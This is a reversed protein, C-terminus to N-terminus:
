KSQSPSPRKRGTVRWAVFFVAATLMGLLVLPLAFLFTNTDSHAQGQRVGPLLVSSRRVFTNAEIPKLAIAGSMEELRNIYDAPDQFRTDVYVVEFNNKSIDITDNVDILVHSIVVTKLYTNNPLPNTYILDSREISQGALINRLTVASQLEAFTSINETEDFENMPIQVVELLEEGNLPTGSRIDVRARIIDTPPVETPLMRAQTDFTSAAPREPLLTRGLGMVLIGMILGISVFALLMGAQYVHQLWRITPARTVRRAERGLLRGCLGILGLCILSIASLVAIEIAINNKESANEVTTNGAITKVINTYSRSGTPLVPMTATDLDNLTLPQGATLDRTTRAGYVAILNTFTQARHAPDDASLTRVELLHETDTLIAGAPIDVRAVLTDYGLGVNARTIVDGAAIPRQTQRGILSSLDTIHRTPDYETASIVRLEILTTQDPIDMHASMNVRATAVAVCDQQDTLTLIPNSACGFGDPEMLSDQTIVEGAVIPRVAIRGQVQRIRSLYGKPLNDSDPYRAIELMASDSIVTSASIDVRARVIDIEPAKEEISPAESPAEFRSLSPFFSAPVIDTLILTTALVVGIILGVWSRGLRLASEVRLIFQIATWLSGGLLFGILSAYMIVTALPLTKILGFVVVAGIIITAIVLNLPFSIVWRFGLRIASALPQQRQQMGRREARAFIFSIYALTILVLGGTLGSTTIGFGGVLTMGASSVAIAGLIGTGIFLLWVRWWALPQAVAAPATPIDILSAEEITIPEDVEETLMGAYEPGAFYELVTRHVFIYSGGVKRLLLRDAAVDLFGAINWPLHGRSWLVIRLALHSLVAYGGYALGSILGGILGMFLISSWGRDPVDTQGMTLLTIGLRSIIQGIMGLSVLGILASLLASRFSRRIGQNPQTHASLDAGSLGGIIGLCVGLGTTTLVSTILILWPIIFWPTSSEPQDVSTIKLVIIGISTAIGAAIGYTLGSVSGRVAALRAHDSSWRLSEVVTVRRPRLSPIGLLAGALAGLLGYIPGLFLGVGPIMELLSQDRYLIAGITIILSPLMYGLLIGGITAYAASRLLSPGRVAPNSQQQFTGGFLGVIIAAILGMLLEDYWGTAAGIVWLSCGILTAWGVRDLLTYARREFATPLWEPQIQEIVFSSQGQQAMSHALWSLWARMRPTPYRQHEGKRALMREVYTEFLRRQQAALGDSQNHQVQSGENYTLLMISLMLPSAALKRSTPDDLLRQRLEPLRGSSAIHQDIQAETLPLLAIAGALRLREGIAEYDATRSCVVLPTTGHDGRYQNIAQACALRHERQVEDLGDLLPLIQDQEVWSRGLQSPIDYRQNLEDILWETIPTRHQAWSSLNFVVPIPAAPTQEASLLLQRALNLLITTKGSGPDGLILLEGGCEAFVDIMQTGAPLQHREQDPREIMMQWPYATADPRQEMGLHILASRYLSQEFVGKIWFDRVKQIMRTRQRIEISPAALAASDVPATESWIRGDRVRMYLAPVWWDPRTRVAGRAAACARDIQGDRRLESFFVPLFIAATEMSIYGQMALVAPIGARVLRPGIANLPDEQPAGASACSLLVVLLPREALQSIQQTLDSASVREIGGDASELWVFPEGSRLTGHAVLYLLDCGQRLQAMITPLSAMAAGVAASLVTIQTGALAQRARELEASANIPALHYHELGSPSAIAILSRLEHYPKLQVISMDQSDLYRSLLVRESHALPGSSDPSDLCEWAIGQLTADDPPMRLSIRLPAGVAEAQARAVDFANRLRPDHFLTASLLNGYAQVHLQQARLSEPDLRVSVPEGDILQSEAASASLRFRVEIRYEDGAWRHLSLELTAYDSM